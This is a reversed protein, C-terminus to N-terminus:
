PARLVKRVDYIVIDGGDFVRRAGPLRDFKTLAQLPIPRDHRSALPDDPFYEGNAPLQQALRLDVVVYQVAYQRILLRDDDNFETDYYLTGLGALMTQQGLPGMVMDNNDDATIHQGAPLMEGAWRAAALGEVGVGNESGSVITRGAPLRAWYPPWGSTIGGAMIVTAIAVAVVIRRRSSELLGIAAVALVYVVPFFVYTMLQTGYETGGISVLRIVPVVYFGASTVLMLLAWPRAQQTRWIRSWGLPLVLATAAVGGYSMIREFLPTQLLGGQTPTEGSAAASVGRILGTVAPELYEVTGPAVFVLWAAVLTACAGALMMLRRGAWTEGRLLHILGASGLVLILLYSTIHHTVVIAAAVVGLLIWTRREGTPRPPTTLRVATCLVLVVLPLALDSYVFTALLSKYYYTTTFLVSAIGGARASGAIRRVLLYLAVTFVVRAAGIVLLGAHFISLGTLQVVAASVAALGPYDPNIPLSYNYDFLRGTTLVNEVTRWNQFEDHYSLDLPAYAFKAAFYAGAALLVLGVIEREQRTGPGRIALLRWMVPVFITLQGVWYATEAPASNSRGGAYGVCVLLLGFAVVPALAPLLSRPVEEPVAQAPRSAALVATM